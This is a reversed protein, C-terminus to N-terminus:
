RAGGFYQRWFLKRVKKSGVSQLAKALSLKRGKEVDFRDRPHVISTGQSVVSGNRSVTCVTGLRGRIPNGSHLVSLPRHLVLLGGTVKEDDGVKFTGRKVHHEWVVQYKTRTVKVQM